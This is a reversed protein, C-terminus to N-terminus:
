RKLVKKEITECTKTYTTLAMLYISGCVVIMGTLQFVLLIMELIFMGKSIKKRM